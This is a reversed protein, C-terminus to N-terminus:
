LSMFQFMESCLYADDFDEYQGEHFNMELNSLGEWSYHPRLCYSIIQVIEIPENWTLGYLLKWQGDSRIRQGVFSRTAFRYLRNELEQQNGEWKSLLKILQEVMYVDNDPNRLKQVWGKFQELTASRADMAVSDLFYQVKGGMALIQLLSHGSQLYAQGVEPFLDNIIMSSLEEPSMSFIKTVDFSSTHSNGVGVTTM